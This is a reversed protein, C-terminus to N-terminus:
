GFSILSIMFVSGDILAGSGSPMVLGASLCRSGSAMVVRFSLKVDHILYEYKGFVHFFSEIM